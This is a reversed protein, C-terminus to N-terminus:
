GVIRKALTSVTHHKINKQPLSRGSIEIADEPTWIKKISESSFIEKYVGKM